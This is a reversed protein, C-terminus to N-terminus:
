VVVEAARGQGAREELERVKEVLGQVRKVTGKEFEEFESKIGELERKASAVEGQVHAHARIDVLLSHRQAHLEDVMSALTEAQLSLAAVQSELALRKSELGSVTVDPASDAVGSDAHKMLAAANGRSSAEASELVRDLKAEIGEVAARWTSRGAWGSAQRAEELLTLTRNLKDSHSSDTRKLVESSAVLRDLREEISLLLRHDADHTRTVKKDLNTLLQQITASLHSATSDLRTLSSTPDIVQAPPPPSAPRPTALTSNLTDLTSQLKSLQSSVSELQAATASASDASALDIRLQALSSSITSSLSSVLTDASTSVADQTSKTISETQTVLSADLKTVAQDLKVGVRVATAAAIVSPLESEISKTLSAIKASVVDSVTKSVVSEIQASVQAVIQESSSALAQELSEMGAVFTDEQVGSARVNEAQADLKSMREVVQSVVKEVSREVRGVAESLSKEVGGSAEKNQKVIREMPGTMADHVTMRTQDLIDRLKVALERRVADEARSAVQGVMSQVKDSQGEDRAIMKKVLGAVAEAVRRTVEEGVKGVEGKVGEEAEKVVGMLEVQRNALDEHALAVAQRTKKGEESVVCSDKDVHTDLRAALERAVQDAGRRSADTAAASERKAAAAELKAIRVQEEMEHIREQLQTNAAVLEARESNLHAVTATAGELEAGIRALGPQVIRPILSQLASVWSSCDAVSDAALLLDSRALLLHFEYRLAGPKAPKEIVQSCTTLDVLKTPTPDHDSALFELIGASMGKSYARVYYRKWQQVNDSDNPLPLIYVLHWIGSSLYRVLMSGRRWVWGAKVLSKGVLPETGGQMPMATDHLDFESATTPDGGVMHGAGLAKALYGRANANKLRMSGYVQQDSASPSRGITAPTTTIAPSTSVGNINSVSDTPVVLDGGPVLFSAPIPARAVPQRRSPLSDGSSGPSSAAPAVRSTFTGSRSLPTSM